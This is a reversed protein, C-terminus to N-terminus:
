ARAPVFLSRNRFLQMSVNENPDEHYAVIREVEERSGLILPVRQHLSEPETELLPHTGTSALAGAHKMLFAM